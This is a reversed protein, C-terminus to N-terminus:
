LRNGLCDRVEGRWGGDVKAGAGLRLSPEKQQVGKGKGRGKKRAKEGDNHGNDNHNDCDLLGM